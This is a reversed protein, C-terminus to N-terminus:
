WLSPSFLFWSGEKDLHDTVIVPVDSLSGCTVFKLLYFVFCELCVILSKLDRQRRAMWDLKTKSEVERHKVILHHLVLLFCALKSFLCQLKCEILYVFYWLFIETIGLGDNLQELLVQGEPFVLFFPVLVVNLVHSRHKNNMFSFWQSGLRNRM